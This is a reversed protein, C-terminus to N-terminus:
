SKQTGPRGMSKGSGVKLEHLDSFLDDPTAGACLYVTGIERAQVAAAGVRAAPAAGEPAVAYWIGPRPSVDADLIPHLDFSM